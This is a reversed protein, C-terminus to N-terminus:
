SEAQAIKLRTELQRQGTAPNWVRSGSRMIAWLEREQSPKEEWASVRVRSASQLHTPRQGQRAPVLLISPSTQHIQMKALCSRCRVKWISQAKEGLATHAPLKVVEKPLQLWFNMWIFAASASMEVGPRHAIRVVPIPKRASQSGSSSPWCPAGAPDPPLFTLDADM